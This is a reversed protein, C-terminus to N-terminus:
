FRPKLRLSNGQKAMRPESEVGAKRNLSILVIKILDLQGDSTQSSPYSIVARYYAFWAGPGSIASLSRAALTNYEHTNKVCQSTNVIIVSSIADCAGYAAGENCM